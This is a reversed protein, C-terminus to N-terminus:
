ATGTTPATASTTTTAPPATTTASTTTTAPPATTTTAASTTTTAPTTTTTTAPPVPTTTTPPVPTTTTTTTTTPPPPAATIIRAVYRAADHVDGLPCITHDIRRPNFYTARFATALRLGDVLAFATVRLTILYPVVSGHPAVRGLCRVPADFRSTGRYLGFGVRHLIMRARHGAARTRTLELRACDSERCDRPVITWVRRIREGPREGPIGVAHTIRGTVSFRGLVKVNVGLGTAHATRPAAATRPNVASRPAAAALTVAAALGFGLAALTILVATTRARQRSRM